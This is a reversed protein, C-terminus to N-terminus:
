ENDNNTVVLENCRSEGVDFTNLTNAIGGQKWTTADDKFKPRSVKVFTTKKQMLLPVNGGGTGM